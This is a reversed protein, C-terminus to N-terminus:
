NKIGLNKETLVTFRWGRLECFNAAAKWKASNIAWDKVENIYRRTKRKETSISPPRTQYEPKVEILHTKGDSTRVKFDVFYRHYRNDVPSIYPIVVEESSWSVIDPHADLYSMLRLEWSSRYVINTPDGEYRSPNRPKFLGRLTKRSM